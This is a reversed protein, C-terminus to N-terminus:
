LMKEPNEVPTDVEQIRSANEIRGKLQAIRKQLDARLALAEALKM